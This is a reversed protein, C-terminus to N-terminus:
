DVFRVGEHQGNTANIYIHSVRAIGDVPIRYTLVNSHSHGNIVSLTPEGDADIMEHDHTIRSIEDETLQPQTEGQEDFVHYYPLPQFSLLVGAHHDIEIRVPRNEYAIGDRKPYFTFTLQDDLEEFDDLVMQEEEDWRTLIQESFAQAEEKNINGKAHDADKATQDHHQVQIIHGGRVSVEVIYESEEREAARFGILDGAVSSSGEFDKEVDNVDDISWLDDMFLFAEEALAEESLPEEDEFALPGLSTDDDQDDLFAADDEGIPTYTDTEDLLEKVMANLKQAQEDGWNNQEDTVYARMQQVHEDTTHAAERIREINDREVGSLESLDDQQLLYSLYQKGAVIYRDWYSHLQLQDELLFPSEYQSKLLSSLNSYADLMHAFRDEHTTASSMEALQQEIQASYSSHQFISESLRTFTEEEHKQLKENAEFLFYSATGLGILLLVIIWLYTQKNFM